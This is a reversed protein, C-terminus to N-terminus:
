GEGLKFVKSFAMLLPIENTKIKGSVFEPIEPVYAKRIIKAVIEPSTKIVCDAKGGTPRGKAVTCKEADVQVTWRHEGGLSFYWCIPKEVEEPQFRGPLEEFLLEFFDKKPAAPAKGLRSVSAPDHVEGQELASVATRIWGTVARAAESARMGQTFERMKEAPIPAGIRVTLDRGKPLVAGKPLV